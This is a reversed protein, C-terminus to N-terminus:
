SITGENSLRRAEREAETKTDFPGARLRIGMPKPNADTTIAEEPVFTPYQEVQYEKFVGYLDHEFKKGKEPWIQRVVHRM